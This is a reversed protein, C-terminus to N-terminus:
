SSRGKPAGKVDRWITSRVIACTAFSYLVAAVDAKVKMVKEYFCM